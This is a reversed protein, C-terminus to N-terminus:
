SENSSTGTAITDATVNLEINRNINTITYVNQGDIEEPLLETQTDGIKIFVKLKDMSYGDKPEIKFKYTSGCKYGGDYNSELDVIEINDSTTSTITHKCDKYHVNKCVSELVSANTVKDRTNDVYIDQINPTNYFAQSGITTVSSPIKITKLKPCNTIGFGEGFETEGEVLDLEELNSFDGLNGYSNFSCKLKTIASNGYIESISIKDAEISELSTCNLIGNNLYISEKGKIYKLNKCEALAYEGISSDTGTLTIGELSTCLAFANQSAYKCKINGKIKNCNYFSFEQAGCNENLIQVGELNTCNFFSKQGIGQTSSPIVVNGTFRSNTFTNNEFYKINCNLVLPIKSLCSAFAGGEIKTVNAPIVLEEELNKCCNFANKCITTVTSPINVKGKKAPLCRILKTVDKNYIIGDIVTFYPNENTIIINELNNCGYLPAEGFDSLVKSNIYLTKLNEAGIFTGSAIKEVGDNIIVTKVNTNRFYYGVNSADVIKTNAFVCGGFDIYNSNSTITDLNSCNYFAYDGIKSINNPIQINTLGICNAFSYADILGNDHNNCNSIQVNNLGVCNYFAYTGINKVGCSLILKTLGKNESFCNNGIDLIKDTNVQNVNTLSFAYEGIKMDIGPNSSFSLNSLNTCNYFAKMGIEKTDKPINISTLNSCESFANYGINIISEPLSISALNSCKNFAKDYIQTTGDLVQINTGSPMTGKYNYLVKGFYNTGQPLSSIFYTNEDFAYRGLEKLNESMTVFNIKYCNYFADYGIVEVTNAIVINRLNYCNSFAGNGITKVGEPIILQTLTSNPDWNYGVIVQYKQYLIDM